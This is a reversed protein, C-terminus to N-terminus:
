PHCSPVPVYISDFYSRLWHSYYGRSHRPSMARCRHIGRRQDDAANIVDRPDDDRSVEGRGGILYQRAEPGRSCQRQSRAGNIHDRDIQRKADDVLNPDPIPIPNPIPDPDVRRNAHQVLYACLGTPLDALLYYVSCSTSWRSACVCMCWAPATRYIHARGAM